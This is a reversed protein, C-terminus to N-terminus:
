MKPSALYDLLSRRLARAEPLHACADLDLASVVLHGAGRRKEWVVGLRRNRTVNDIGQVIIEAEPDGDLVANVGHFLM